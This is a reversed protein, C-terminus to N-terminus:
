HRGAGGLVLVGINGSAAAYAIEDGNAAFLVAAGVSAEGKVGGDTALLLNYASASTTACREGSASPGRSTAPMARPMRTAFCAGFTAPTSCTVIAKASPLADRMGLLRAAVKAGRKAIIADLSPFGAERDPAVAARL